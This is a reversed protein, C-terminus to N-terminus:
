SIRAFKKGTSHYTCELKELTWKEAVTTNSLKIFIAQGMAGKHSVAPKGALTSSFTGSAAATTSNYASEASDGAFVTYTLSASTLGLTARMEKLRVGMQTGGKLPGLYVHSSIATGDDDSATQDWKRLHGDYGGMLM